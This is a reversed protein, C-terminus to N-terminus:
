PREKRTLVLCDEDNMEAVFGLPVYTTTTPEVVLLPGTLAGRASLEGRGVVDAEVPAHRSFCWVRTREPTRAVEPPAPVLGTTVSLPTRTTVRVTVLEVAGPLEHGFVRSYEARFDVLIDEVGARPDVARTLAHEQGQFRLDLQVERFPVVGDPDLGDLLEGAVARARRLVEEDLPAVLTRAANRTADSSLLGVASFNGANPPVVVRTVDLEDAVLCAFLPGAGGFGVIAATRPDIGREVTIGRIAQAM